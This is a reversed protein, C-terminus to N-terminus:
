SFVYTNVETITTSFTKGGSADVDYNIVQTLSVIDGTAPDYVVEVSCDTYTVTMETISTGLQSNFMDKVQDASLVPLVSSIFGAPAVDDYALAEPNSEDNFVIVIKNNGDALTTKQASKVAEDVAGEDLTNILCAFRNNIVFAPDKNTIGSVTVPNDFYKVGDVEIKSANGIFLLNLFNWDISRETKKEYSVSGLKAKDVVAKYSAMISQFQSADAEPIEEPTEEPAEEGGGTIGGLMGGLDPMEMSGLGGLLGMITDLIGGSSDDSGGSSGSDDSSDDGSGVDSGSGSGSGSGGDSGSGSNDSGGPTTDAPKSEETPAETTEDEAADDEAVKVSSLGNTQMLLNTASALKIATSSLLGIAVGTAVLLLIVSRLNETKKM